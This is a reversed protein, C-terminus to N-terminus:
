ENKRVWRAVASRLKWEWTPHLTMEDGSEINHEWKVLDTNIFEQRAKSVLSTAENSHMNYKRVLAQRISAEKVQKGGEDILCLLVKRTNPSLRAWKEEFVENSEPGDSRAVVEQLWSRVAKILDSLEPLPQPNVILATMAGELKVESETFALVPVRRSEFFQRYALIALEQNIWVSSRIGWEEGSPTVVKGRRHLVAIAGSCRSLGDFINRGLSDLDHVRDAFYAEFGETKDITQKIANGLIKEDSTQQGCSVFILKKVM